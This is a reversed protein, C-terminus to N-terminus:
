SPQFPHYSAWLEWGVAHIGAGGRRACVRGRLKMILFSYHRNRERRTEAAGSRVPAAIAFYEWKRASLSRAREIKRVGAFSCLHGPVESWSRSAGFTHKSNWASQLKELRRGQASTSQGCTHAKGNACRLDKSSVDAWSAGSNSFYTLHKQWMALRRTKIPYNRM